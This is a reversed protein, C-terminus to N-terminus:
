AKLEINREETSNLLVRFQIIPETFCLIFFLFIIFFVLSRIDYYIIHKPVCSSKTSIIFFSM